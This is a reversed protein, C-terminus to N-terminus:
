TETYIILKSLNNGSPESHFSLKVKEFNRLKFIIQVENRQTRMLNESFEVYIVRM